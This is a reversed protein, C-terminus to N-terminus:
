FEIKKNSIKRKGLNSEEFKINKSETKVLEEKNNFKRKKLFIIFFISIGIFCAIGLVIGIIAGTNLGKSKNNQENDNVIEENVKNSNNNNNDNINIKNNNSENENSESNEKTVINEDNEIKKTNSDKNTDSKIEDKINTVNENTIKNRITGDELIEYKELEEEITKLVEYNPGEPNLKMFNVEPLSGDEGREKALENKDVSLFDNAVIKIKKFNWSNFRNNKDPIDASYLNGNKGYM